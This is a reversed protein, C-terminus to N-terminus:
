DLMIAICIRPGDGIMETRHGEGTLDEVLTIDGPGVRRVEGDGATIEAGGSLTIYYMRRSVTHWDVVRHPEFYRWSIGAVTQLDPAQPFPLEEFHSKGDEGAYIRVFSLPLRRRPNVTLAYQGFGHAHFLAQRSARL